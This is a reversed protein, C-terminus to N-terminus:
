KIQINKIMYNLSKTLEDFQSQSLKKNSQPTILSSMPLQQQTQQQQQQAVQTDVGSAPNMANAGAAYGALNGLSGLGGTINQLGAGWMDRGEQQRDAYPLYKNTMWEETKFGSIRQQQAIAQGLANLRQGEGAMTANLAAADSNAQIASIVALPNGADRAAGLANASSLANQDNLRNEIKSYSGLEGMLAELAMREERPMNYQPANEKTLKKGKAMQAVGAGAQIIAPIAMAALPLPM